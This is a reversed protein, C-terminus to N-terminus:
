IYGWAGHFLMQAREEQTESNAIAAFGHFQGDDLRSSSAMYTALWAPLLQFALGPAGATPNEDAAAAPQPNKPVSVKEGRLCLSLVSTKSFGSGPPGKRPKPKRRAETVGHHFRTQKAVRGSACTQTCVAAFAKVLPKISASKSFSVRQQEFSQRFTM